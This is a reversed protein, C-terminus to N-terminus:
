TLSVATAQACWCARGSRCNDKQAVLSPMKSVHRCNSALSTWIRSTSGATWLASLTPRSVITNHAMPLLDAHYISVESFAAFAETWAEVLVPNIDVLHLKM